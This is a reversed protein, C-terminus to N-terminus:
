CFNKIKEQLINQENEDNLNRDFHSKLFKISTNYDKLEAFIFCLLYDFSITRQAFGRKENKREILLSSINEERTQNNDFWIKFKPLNRELVDNLSRKFKEENITSIRDINLPLHEEYSKKWGELQKYYLLKTSKDTKHYVLKANSSITPVFNFCNGFSFSGGFNKFVNYEVVHKIGENNYDSFWIYKGNWNKLGIEAFKPTAIENFIQIRKELFVEDLNKLDDYIEDLAKKRQFILKIEKLINM